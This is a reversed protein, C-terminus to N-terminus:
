MLPIIVDLLSEVFRESGEHTLHCIDNFYLGEKPIKREQDVFLAGDFRRALKRTVTNHAALAAVVCDPRGWLEIPLTHATYDLSRSDFSTESYDEPLHYAFTMLLVPEAKRRALELIGTLNTRVSESTKVNCGAAVSEDDPRHVPLANSFGLREAAKIAVFKFTYPFILWRTDARREFDNILGYWAYHSYDSQFTNADCNNTRAENIAHYVMVLDFRRDALHRYKYLSDLTTHGAASLNHLRVCKGTARILRERLVHEIDGYDTHLASGGLMLIDFCENDQDRPTREVEAVNPYFSRYVTRPASWFGAGRLTWFARAGCETLTLLSLVYIAIVAIQKRTLKRKM